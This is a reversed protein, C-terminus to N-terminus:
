EDEGEGQDGGPISGLFQKVQSETAEVQFVGVPVPGTPLLTFDPANENVPVGAKVLVDSLKQWLFSETLPRERLAALSESVTEQFDPPLRISFLDRLHALEMRTLSVNFTAVKEDDVNFKDEVKKSTEKKVESSSSPAASKRKVV